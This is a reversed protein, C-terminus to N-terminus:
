SRLVFRLEDPAEECATTAVEQVNSLTPGRECWQLITSVMEEDGQFEAEVRGDPLNHVWGTLGIEEAKRRTHYRFGVGQVRGSILVRVRM